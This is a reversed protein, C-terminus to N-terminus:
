YDSTDPRAREKKKESQIHKAELVKEATIRNAAGRQDEPGWRSSPTEPAQGAAAGAIGTGALLVILFSRM